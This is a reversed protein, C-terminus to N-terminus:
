MSEVLVRDFPALVVYRTGSNDDRGYRIRLAGTRVCPPGKRIGDTILKEETTVVYVRGPVVSM